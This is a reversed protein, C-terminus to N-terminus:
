GAIGGRDSRMFVRTGFGDGLYINCMVSLFLITDESLKGMFYIFRAPNGGNNGV